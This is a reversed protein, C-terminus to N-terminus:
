KIDASICLQACSARSCTERTIERPPSRLSKWAFAPALDTRGNENIRPPTAHSFRHMAIACYMNSVLLVRRSLTGATARESKIQFRATITRPLHTPCRRHAKAIISSARHKQQHQRQANGYRDGDQTAAVATARDVAAVQGDELIVRV